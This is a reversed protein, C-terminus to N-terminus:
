RDAQFFKSNHGLRLYRYIFNFLILSVYSLDVLMFKYLRIESYWYENIVLRNPASYYVVSRDERKGIVLKPEPIMDNGTIMFSCTLGDNM